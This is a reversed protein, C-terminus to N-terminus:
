VCADVEARDERRRLARVVISISAVTVDDGVLKRGHSVCLATGPMPGNRPVITWASICTVEM